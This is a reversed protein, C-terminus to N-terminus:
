KTNKEQYTSTLVDRSYIDTALKEMTIKIQLEQENSPETGLFVVIYGSFYGYYSPVSAKCITKVAVGLEPYLKSAISDKFKTCEFQGNILKITTSNHGEDSTFMPITKPGAAFADANAKNLTPDDAVFFVQTAENSRLDASMVVLGLIPKSSKVNAEIQKQTEQGVKFTQGVPNSVGPTLAASSIRGRNEYVTYLILSSFALGSWLLVRGLSITRVVKLMFGIM